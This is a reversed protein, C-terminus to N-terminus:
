GLRESCSRLKRSRSYVVSQAAATRIVDTQIVEAAAACSGGPAVGPTIPEIFRRLVAVMARM